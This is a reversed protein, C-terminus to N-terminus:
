TREGTGMIINEYKPIMNQKYKFGKLNETMM